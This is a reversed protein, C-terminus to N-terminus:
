RVRESSAFQYKCLLLPEPRIQRQEPKKVRPIPRIKLTSLKVNILIAATIVLYTAIAQADGKDLQSNRRGHAYPSASAHRSLKKPTTRTERESEDCGCDSPGAVGDAPIDYRGDM